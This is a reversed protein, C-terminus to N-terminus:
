QSMGINTRTTTSLYAAKNKESQTENESSSTTNKPDEFYGNEFHKPELVKKAESLKM